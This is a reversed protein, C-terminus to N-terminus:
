SELCYACIYKLFEVALAIDDHIDAFSMEPEIMWFEALHRSTNSNEARFTPGFTYVKGLATALLEAELQGSVTLGTKKGFFDRAYDVTEGTRPINELDLATVRFMEGAGECDSATIIPTNVYLFGREQFFRHIGFSIANRVRNVAGFTNTRARLHAIERLFEFSHRKKQLPYQEPDAWGYVSLERARLEHTQGQGPSEVLDGTVAVSCGTTIKQAESLGGSSTDAVVQLSQITSGDNIELFSVGRADRRTRVWGRITVNNQPQEYALADKVTLRVM